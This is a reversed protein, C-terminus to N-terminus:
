KGNMSLAIPMNELVGFLIDPLNINRSAKPTTYGHLELGFEPNELAFMNFNNWLTEFPARWAGPAPVSFEQDQQRLGKSLKESLAASRAALRRLRAQNPGPELHTQSERFIHIFWDRDPRESNPRLLIGAVWALWHLRNVFSFEDSSLPEVGQITIATHDTRFTLGSLDWTRRLTARDVGEPPHIHSYSLLDFDHQSALAAFRQAIAIWGDAHSM